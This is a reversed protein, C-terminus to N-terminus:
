FCRQLAYDSGAISFGFVVCASLLFVSAAVGDHGDIMNYANIIGTIAIITLPTALWGLGQENGDFWGFIDGISRVVVDDGIVLVGSILLQLFLRGAAPIDHHDDLIGVIMLCGLCFLFIRFRSLGFPFLALAFFFAVIIAIGGILPIQDRHRKRSDPSATLGVQKAFPPLYM